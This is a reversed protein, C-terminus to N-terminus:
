VSGLPSFGNITAQAISAAMSIPASASDPLFIVAPLTKVLPILPHTKSTAVAPSEAQGVPQAARDGQGVGGPRPVEQVSPSPLVIARASEAVSVCALWVLSWTGTETVIVLQRGTRRSATPHWFTM